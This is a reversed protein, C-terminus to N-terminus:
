QETEGIYIVGDVFMCAFSSLPTQWSTNKKQAQHLNAYQEGFFMGEDSHLWSSLFIFGLAMQKQVRGEDGCFSHKPSVALQAPSPILVAM